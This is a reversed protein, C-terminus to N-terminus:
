KEKKETSPSQTPFVPPNNSQDASAQLKAEAHLLEEYLSNIFAEAAQYDADIAASEKEAVEDLWKELGTQKKEEDTTDELLQKELDDFFATDAEEEDTARQKMKEAYAEPDNAQLEALELATAQNIMRLRGLFDQMVEETLNKALQETNVVNYKPSFVILELMFQQKIDNTKADM